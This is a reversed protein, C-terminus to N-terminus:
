KHKRFIMKWRNTLWTDHCIQEQTLYQNVFRSRLWTDIVGKSDMGILLGIKSGGAGIKFSDLNHVGGLTLIIAFSFCTWLEVWGNCTQELLFAGMIWGIQM